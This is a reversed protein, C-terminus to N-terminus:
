SCKILGEMLFSLLPFVQWMFKPTPMESDFYLIHLFSFSVKCCSSLTPWQLPFYRKYKGGERIDPISLYIFLLKLLITDLSLSVLFGDQLQLFGDHWFSHSGHFPYLAPPKTLVCNYSGRSLVCGPKGKAYTKSAGPARNGSSGTRFGKREWRLEKCHARCGLGLGGGGDGMMYTLDRLPHYNAKERNGDQYLALSLQSTVFSYALAISRASHYLTYFSVCREGHSARAESKAWKWGHGTLAMNVRSSASCGM